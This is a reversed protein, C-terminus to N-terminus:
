LPGATETACRASVGRQLPAGSRVRSNGCAPFASCVRVKEHNSHPLYEKLLRIGGRRNQARADAPTLSRSIRRFFTPPYGLVRGHRALGGNFAFLPVINFAAVFRRQVCRRLATPRLPSRRQVCLWLGSNFAM